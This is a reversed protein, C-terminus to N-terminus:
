GRIVTISRGDPSLALETTTRDCIPPLGPRRDFIVLWGTELGLGSLYKDLQKLGTALPDPKGKRWVKLEMGLTVSGYRLCLDMRGSGIAYERELTGGGNAVRHLFAMLVLHPAIEPYPTSKLLPEGHQRWFELFSDLLQQPNLTGRPTLWTPHISTLSAITNTALVKPLVERYLPNAIQIGGGRDRNCLGLDLVYQLDDQPTNPLDQGALIPEIIAKVRQEQLREGLSDIHTDNRQILIEKAQNILNLTIPIAPDTALYETIEKALANVLWPQGNTLDYARQIAESTFIQGTAETHQHYLNRVEEFSFNGLTFSRVKINFPSATHLRDGSGTAFKYDRVDRMGILALSHPFGQPRNPYGSRLQRLVSILTEDKLADIEDLFVVLPLPSAMSWSQLVTQLDLYPIGSEEQVQHLNPLPLKLFRVQNWWNNLISRQAQTLDHPFAAGTELSLLVALYQGSTNLQEALALMSTTKGTQRPAHIVFYNRQAILQKLEPLRETPSLMYHIDAKCPGATNFWKTM